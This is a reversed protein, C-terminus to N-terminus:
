AHVIGFIKWVKGVFRQFLDIEEKHFQWQQLMIFYNTLSHECVRFISFCINYIVSDLQLQRINPQKNWKKTVIAWRWKRCGFSNLNNMSQGYFVVIVITAWVRRKSEDVLIWNARRKVGDIRYWRDIINWLGFETPEMTIFLGYLCYLCIANLHNFLLWDEVM